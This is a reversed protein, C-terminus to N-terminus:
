QLCLCFVDVGILLLSSVRCGGGGRSGLFMLVACWGKLGSAGGGMLLFVGVCVTGVGQALSAWLPVM